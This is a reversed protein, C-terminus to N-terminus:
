LPYGSIHFNRLNESNCSGCTYIVIFITDIAVYVRKMTDCFHLSSNIFCILIKKILGGAIM